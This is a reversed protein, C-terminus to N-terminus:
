PQKISIQGAKDENNYQGTITFTNHYFQGPAVEEVVRVTANFTYTNTKSDYVPEYKEVITRKVAEGNNSVSCNLKNNSLDLSINFNYSEWKGTMSGGGETRTLVRKAMKSEDVSFRVIKDEVGEVELILPYKTIEKIEIMKKEWEEFTKSTILSPDTLEIYIGYKKYLEDVKAQIVEDNIVSESQECGQTTVCIVCIFLLFKFINKM